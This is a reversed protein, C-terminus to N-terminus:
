SLVFSHLEREREERPRLLPLRKAGITFIENSGFFDM